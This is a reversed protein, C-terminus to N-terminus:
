SEGGTPYTQPFGGLNGGVAVGLSARGEDRVTKRVLPDALVACSM